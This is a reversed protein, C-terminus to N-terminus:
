PKDAFGGGLARVLAVDFTFTTAELDAVARRQQILLGEATLVDLYTSLQAKYRTQVLRYANESDKLSARTDVLEGELARRNAYADAIERLANTLTKDYLAVAGDYEARAGRYIGTNRGYDFIPLHIAPGFAGTESSAQVLYKLDLTQLGFTGTLDVNPYFNANAVEIRAAAAEVNHRAAVVDPRRGALDIVLNAPLGTSRVKHAPVDIVAVGRNPGKGLLAALQNRTLAIQRDIDKAEARAAKLRAQAQSVAAENELGNKWRLEVLAASEGRIRIAEAATRQDAFQQMLVSYTQVVAASIQVRAAALEARAALVDSTAAALSARNKGFFDIEYQVGVGITAAHHWGHPMMAKFESPVSRRIM